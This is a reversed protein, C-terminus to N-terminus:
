EEVPEKSAKAPPQRWGIDAAAHAQAAGLQGGLGFREDGFAPAFDLAFGRAEEASRCEKNSRRDPKPEYEKREIQM